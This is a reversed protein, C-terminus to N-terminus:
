VRRVESYSWLTSIGDKFRVRVFAGEVDLETVVGTRDAPKVLVYDGLWLCAMM